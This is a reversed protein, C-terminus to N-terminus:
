AAVLVSWGMTPIWHFSDGRSGPRIVLRIQAKSTVDRDLQTAQYEFDEDLEELRQARTRRDQKPVTTGADITSGQESIKTKIRFVEFDVNM